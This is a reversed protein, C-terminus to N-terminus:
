KTGHTAQVSTEGLGGEAQQRQLEGTEYM